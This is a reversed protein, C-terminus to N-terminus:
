TASGTAAPEPAQAPKPETFELDCRLCRGAERTAADASIVTEVEEFTHCSLDPPVRPPEVREVKVFEGEAAVVSPVYVKPLHVVPTEALPEGRLYRGISKAGKKGAAIAAVVMNPGTVVDGGAFVGPRSTALTEPDVELTGDRRVKIGAAAFRAADTDPTEGIAVILTDLPVACDSGPVPVPQRRGSSDAAGLTNKILGLACIREKGAEVRSPSVLTVLEIGECLAAEVEEDIAPMEARTRRYYITVAEVGNQRLAVRAADIASNGGGIIGVRGRALSEGRLNFAKLFDVAHFVGATHEGAISLARSKHAGFALFISKFGEELLREIDTDKGFSVGCKITVNEDVLAAIEKKLV